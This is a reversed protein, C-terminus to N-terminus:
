LFFVSSEPTTARISPPLGPLTIARRASISPRGMVSAVPSGKAELCSPRICAQPWSVCMVISRPAALTSFSFLAPRFPVTLSIKWVASSVQVPEWIMSLSPTISFGWTSATNLMCMPVMMSGLMGAPVTITVGPQQM